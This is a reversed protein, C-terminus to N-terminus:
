KEKEKESFLASKLGKILAGSFIAKRLLIVILSVLLYFGAAILFGIALSGYKEGYWFSFAFTLFLLIFTSFTLVTISTMIVTGAKAVKEILVIKWLNVRATIYNQFVEKLGFLSEFVGNKM